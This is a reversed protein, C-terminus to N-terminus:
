KKKNLYELNMTGIVIDDGEKIFTPVMIRINDRIVAPKSASASNQGRVVSECSVIQVVIKEPLTVVVPNNNYFDVNIEMAEGLLSLRDGFLMSSVEIQSFDECNMLMVNTADRYLFNYKKQELQVRLVSENSRFRFNGKIKNIIEKTTIQMYAVGKGPKTHLTKTVLHLKNNCLLVNNVRIDIADIKSSM